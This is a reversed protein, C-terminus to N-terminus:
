DMSKIRSLEQPMPVREWVQMDDPKGYGAIEEEPPQAPLMILLSGLEILEGKTGKPCISVAPADYYEINVLSSM